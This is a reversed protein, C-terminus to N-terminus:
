WCGDDFRWGDTWTPTCEQDEPLSSPGPAAARAARLGGNEWLEELPAASKSRGAVRRVKAGGNVTLKGNIIQWSGIETGMM